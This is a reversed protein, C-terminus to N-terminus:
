YGKLKMCKQKYILENALQEGLNSGGVKMADLECQAYDRQYNGRAEINKSSHQGDLYPNVYETACGTLLTALLITTKM